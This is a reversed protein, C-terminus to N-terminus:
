GEVRIFLSLFVAKHFINIYKFKCELIYNKSEKCIQLGYDTSKYEHYIVHVSYEIIGEVGQSKNIRNINSCANEDVVKGRKEDAEQGGYNVSMNEGYCFCMESDPNTEKPINM